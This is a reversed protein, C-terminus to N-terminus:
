ADFGLKYATSRATGMSNAVAAPGMQTLLKRVKASRHEAPAKTNGAAKAKTIGERQRELM